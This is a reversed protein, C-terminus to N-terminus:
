LYKKLIKILARKLFCMFHMYNLGHFENRDENIKKVGFFNTIKLPTSKPDM